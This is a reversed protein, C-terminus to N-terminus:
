WYSRNHLRSCSSSNDIIHQPIATFICPYNQGICAINWSNLKSNWSHQLTNETCSPWDPSYVHPPSPMSNKFPLFLSLLLAHKHITQGRNGSPTWDMGGIKVATTCKPIIPHLPLIMLTDSYYRNIPGRTPGRTYHLWVLNWWSSKWPFGFWKNM